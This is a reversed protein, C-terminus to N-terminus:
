FTSASAKAAQGFERQYALWENKLKSMLRLFLPHDQLFRLHPDDRFGPYLPLGTAGAKELWAIAPLPRELVAYAAAVAHMTHHTHSLSKGGRVAQQILKESKRREGRKAWLLAECGILMPDNPLVQSAARITEAAKELKGGYLPAIPSFLNAWLNARDISVARAFLEQAEEYSGGWMATQALFVFTFTDDPNAALAASLCERAEPLLGIHALICGQWSLAQQNTPQKELVKRISRLALTNQFKKHPTWLIRGRAIQAEINDKDLLLARKVSREARMMWKPGPEFTVGMQVYAEALAAWADPFESDLETVNELIEVATRTDWRNNRLMRERARMFLEYAAPNKTPAPLSLNTKSKPALTAALDESLRDQLGFLDTTEGDCKTSFRACGDGVDWAELHVRLKQGLRQISGEVILEVNLERAALMFDVNQGRYRMVASVPRLLLVGTASLRNIVADALAISLYEDDPNPTLLQFPLVAVAKKNAVAVPLNVGLELDRTLNVFDAQADKASQHRLEPKKELLKFIIRSLKAPLKNGGGTLQAPMDNMLQSALAIATPGPFPRRGAAMEYLLVGLSFLDSRKDGLDGHLKEPAMYALTGAVQSEPIWAHSVTHTATLVEAAMQRALGFDLLKVREDALVMINEPKIDGHIVGHEHASALAEAIQAALRLLTRVDVPGERLLSRLPKGPVLEMVIFLHEGDEGVDYITTIGPHNLSSALRAEALIRSWRESRNSIKDTLLKLAVRRQLREDYARYVVGMGGGGIEEEIRYHSIKAAVL